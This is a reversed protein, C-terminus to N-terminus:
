PLVDFHKRRRKNEYMRTDAMHKLDKRGPNEHVHVSGSSAGAFEYGALRMRGIVEALTGEIWELNGHPCTVAFEDGGLRHLKARSELREALFSAFCRLLDDGREHGFKDNYYKLGDLDIFTLSGELPLQGLEEELVYRNPLGTLADTYAIRQSDAYRQLAHERERHLQAFQYSLVLALLIVEVAVAVLGIHEVYLTYIGDLHALSIAASGLVFFTGIAVLYLRASFNGERARIIGSILGYILFLGVGYRDFELSWNPLVAALVIFGAFLVLLSSGALYLRPHSNARIELLARVFLVYACNSFLIPVSILYFWHMDLLHPYVLLATGNYLLNGLIFLAYMGEAARRRVVALAAYYIGLGVFVGLCMLVVANGLIISHRYHQLTDLYPEPQALFFPSFLETVLRYHGAALELERGHRLFFPNDAESQIGGEISAVQRGQADLVMHRFRGIVSSNKFDIVYRGPQAIDFESQLFFRGGVPSIRSVPVLTSTDLRGQGQYPSAQGTKDQYWHASLELPAAFTTGCALAMMAALLSRLCGLWQWVYTM